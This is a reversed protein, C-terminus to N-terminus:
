IMQGNKFQTIQKQQSKKKLEKNMRSILGRNPSYSAFIKEEIHEEKITLFCKLKSTM